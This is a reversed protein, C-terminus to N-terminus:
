RKVELARSMETDMVLGDTLHGCEVDFCIHPQIGHEKLKRSFFIDPGHGCKGSVPVGVGFWPEPVKDFVSRHVLCMSMGAHDIPYTGTAPHDEWAHGDRIASPLYPDNRSYALAAVHPRSEPDAAARLTRLGDVPPVIDDDMWLFWDAKQGTAEEHEFMDSLMWRVCFPYTLRTQRPELLWVQFDQVMNSLLKQHAYFSKAKVAEYVGIAVAVIERMQNGPM